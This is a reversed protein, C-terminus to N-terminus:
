WSLQFEGGPNWEFMTLVAWFIGPAPRCIIAVWFFMGGCFSLSRSRLWIYGLGYSALTIHPSTIVGTYCNCGENRRAFNANGVAQLGSITSTDVLRGIFLAVIM